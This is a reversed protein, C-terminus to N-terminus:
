LKTMFIVKEGKRELRRFVEKMQVIPEETSGSIKRETNTDTDAAGRISKMSSLSTMKMEYAQPMASGAFTCIFKFGMLGGVGSGGQWIKFKTWIM